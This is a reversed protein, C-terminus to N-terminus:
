MTARVIVDFTLDTALKELQFANGWEGNVGTKSRLIEAFVQVEDLILPVTAQTNKASFGPNLRSRWSKWMAGSNTVLDLDQGLPRLFDKPQTAKSLNMDSTFSASLDLDLVFLMPPAIPWLDLYLVPPCSTQGPFLRQWHELIICPIFLPHIDTPYGKCLNKFLLLHGFLISHPMLPQSTLSTNLCLDIRECHLHGIIPRAPEGFPLSFCSLCM